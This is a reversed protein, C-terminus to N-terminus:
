HRGLLPLQQQQLAPPRLLAQPHRDWDGGGGGHRGDTHPRRRQRRRRRPHQALDHEHQEEQQSHANRSGGDMTDKSIGMGDWGM